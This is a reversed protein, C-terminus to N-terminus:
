RIFSAPNHRSNSGAICRWLFNHTRIEVGASVTKSQMALVKGALRIYYQGTKVCCYEYMTAEPMLARAASSSSQWFAIEGVPFRLKLFVLVSVLPIDFAEFAKSPFHDYDPFTLNIFLADVAQYDSLEELICLLLLARKSIELQPGLSPLWEM